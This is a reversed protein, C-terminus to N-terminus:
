SVEVSPSSDTALSVVADGNGEPLARGALFGRIRAVAEAVRTIHGETMDTWLPLTVVQGAVRDTTPLVRDAGPLKRYARQRHM